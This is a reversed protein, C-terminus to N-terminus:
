STKLTKEQFPCLLKKLSRSKTQRQLTKQTLFFPSRGFGTDNYIFAVTAERDNNSIYKLAIRAQDSYSVSGIFNYPYMGGNALKESYSASIYPIKDDTIKPALAETDGTGWGIIAIVKNEKLKDYWSYAESIKYEYDKWILNIKRGNIGGKEENLYKIYDIIGEAYGKGVEGTPGSLDFIGGINIEKPTDKKCAFTFSILVILSFLFLFTRKKM